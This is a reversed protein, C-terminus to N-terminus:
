NYVRIEIPTDLLITNKKEGPSTYTYIKYVGNGDTYVQARDSTTSITNAVNVITKEILTM